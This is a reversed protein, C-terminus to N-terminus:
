TPVASRRGDAPTTVTATCCILVPYTKKAAPDYGPPTYVYFDRQDGAVASNYFHHHIEGHPVDNVEWPLSPGPFMCRLEGASLLNPM